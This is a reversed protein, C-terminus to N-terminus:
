GTAMTPTPADAPPSSANVDRSSPRDSFGPMAITKTCCRAGCCSLASTGSSERCLGNGTTCAVCSTSTLTLVTYTMGGSRCIASDPVVSCRVWRGFSEERYVGTSAKKEDSASVAPARAMPTTSDPVADSPASPTRSILVAPPTVIACVGSDAFYSPM